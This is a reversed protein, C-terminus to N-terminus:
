VCVIINPFLPPTIRYYPAGASLCEVISSYLPLDQSIADMAACGFEAFLICGIHDFCIIDHCSGVLLACAHIIILVCEALLTSGSVGSWFDLLSNSLTISLRYERSTFPSTSFGLRVCLKVDFWHCFVWIFFCPWFLLVWKWLCSGVRDSGRYFETVSSVMKPYGLSM